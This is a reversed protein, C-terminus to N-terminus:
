NLHVEVVSFEFKTKVNFAELIQTLQSLEETAAGIAFYFLKLMVGMVIAGISLIPTIIKYAIKM